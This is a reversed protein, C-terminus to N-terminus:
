WILTIVTNTTLTEDNEVRFQSTTPGIELTNSANVGGPSLYALDQGVTASHTALTVPTVSVANVFASSITSTTGSVVHRTIAGSATGRLTAPATTAAAVSVPQNIVPVLIGTSVGGAATLRSTILINPVAVAAYARRISVITLVIVMALVLSIGTRTLTGSAHMKVNM